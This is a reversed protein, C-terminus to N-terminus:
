YYGEQKHFELAKTPTVYRRQIYKIGCEIQEHLDSTKKCGVGKWTSDLFQFLGYATSHKNQATTKFGSERMLLEHLAGWHEEGFYMDSQKKVERQVDNLSKTSKAPVTTPQPTKVPEEVTVVTHQFNLPKYLEETSPMGDNAYVEVDKTSFFGKSFSGIGIVILVFLIVIHFDRQTKM